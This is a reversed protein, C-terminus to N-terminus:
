AAERGEFRTQWYRGLVSVSIVTLTIAVGPWVAIWWANYLYNRGEALMLGWEAAPPQPGM